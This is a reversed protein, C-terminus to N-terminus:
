ARTHQTEAPATAGALRARQLYIPFRMALAAVQARVRGETATDGLHELVDALWGGIQEM